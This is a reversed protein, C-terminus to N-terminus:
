DSAKEAEPAVQMASPVAVDIIRAYPILYETSTGLERIGIFDVGRRTIEGVPSGTPRSVSKLEKELELVSEDVEEGVANPNGGLTRVGLRKTVLERSLEHYRSLNASRNAYYKRSRDVMEDTLFGIRYANADRDLSFTVFKQQAVIEALTETPASAPAEAQVLGALALLFICILLRM